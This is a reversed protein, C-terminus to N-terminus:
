NKTTDDIYLRFWLEVCLIRFLFRSTTIDFTHDSKLIKNLRKEDFIGRMITKEDHFIDRLINRNTEFFEKIPSPFGLKKTDNYVHIPLISKLAERQIYKGKGNQLLYEPPLTFAFNVLKYDMFPLRSEISFAMSISDGYHLLNVLTNKHSKQLQGIFSSKTNNEHQQPYKFHKLDGILINETKLIYKRIFTKAWSPLKQRIYIVFISKLSYNKSLDVLNLYFRKFQAKRLKEELYQGATANIYGGLLEDAGQGELVVTVKEKAKEYVKWLPFVAPSLHGSELHYIIRKLISIYDDKLNVIVQNEKLKLEINTKGAAIYENHIYNPFTATFTEHHDTSFTRLAAVISNSDLGGSLTTGVPVDSRMRLRVSNVFLTYFEKKAEEFTLQNSHVPYQYYKYINIMGDKITLNHAPQLRVINEFWTEQLEGCIGERCFLGISNYNPKKLLPDYAIISKIESSFLFRSKDAFYNFPKVGFRDRSCFLHNNNENLIAFAWMGNFRNVCSEGWYDYANVLVETDSSTNFLYGKLTLEEKIEIYNYIEGNYVVHYNKVKMPQNAEPNLDIISLRVHGLAISDNNFFRSQQFDPGRHIQKLLSEEFKVKAVKENNMLYIGFIGCM